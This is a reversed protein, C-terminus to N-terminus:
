VPSATMSCPARERPDVVEGFRELESSGSSGVGADRCLYTAECPM